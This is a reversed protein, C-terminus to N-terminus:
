IRPRPYKRELAELQAMQTKLLILRDEAGELSSSLSRRAEALADYPQAYASAYHGKCRQGEKRFGSYAHGRKCVALTETVLYSKDTVRARYVGLTAQNNYIDAHYVTIIKDSSM